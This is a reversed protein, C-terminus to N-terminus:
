GKGKLNAIQQDAMSKLQPNDQSLESAKIFAQIADDKKNERVLVEGLRFYDEPDPNQSDAVAAKYEAESKALEAQDIGALGGLARQLHVMALGSHIAELYQGKRRQFVEDTEDPMKELKELLALAKQGDQEAETLKKDPNM